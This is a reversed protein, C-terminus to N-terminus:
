SAPKDTVLYNGDIAVKKPKAYRPSEYLERNDGRGIAGGTVVSMLGSM